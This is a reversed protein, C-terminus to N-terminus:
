PMRLLIVRDEDQGRDLADLTAEDTATGWGRALIAEAARPFALPSTSPL